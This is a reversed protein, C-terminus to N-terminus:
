GPGALLVDVERKPCGLVTRRQGWVAWAVGARGTPGPWVWVRWGASAQPQTVVTATQTPELSLGEPESQLAAARSCLWKTGHVGQCGGNEAPSGSGQATGFGARAAAGSAPRGVLRGGLLPSPGAEAQTGRHPLTALPGLGRLLWFRPRPSRPCSPLPTSSSSQPAGSRGSASAFSKRLTQLADVLEGPLAPLWPLARPSPRASHRM